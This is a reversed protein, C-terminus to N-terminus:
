QRAVAAVDLEGDGAEEASRYKGWALEMLPVSCSLSKAMECGLRLDKSALAVAFRPAYDSNVMMPGRVDMQFSRAGTDQLLKLLQGPEVGAEMGLRMGEGLIAINSMGILNSILKVACSAKISGVDVPKGMIELLPWVKGKADPEGGVFIPSEGRAAHEPTKSLTAQVYAGGRKQLAAALEEALGPAITSCEIHVVGPKLRAYLGDAGSAGLMGEQLHQPLALCSVLVDCEALDDRCTTARASAGAAAIAEAKDLSRSYAVLSYNSAALLRGIPAGMRGAGWFAIKM